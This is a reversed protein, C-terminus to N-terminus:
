INDKNQIILITENKILVDIFFHDNTHFDLLLHM